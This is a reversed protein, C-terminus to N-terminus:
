RRYNDAPDERDEFSEYQPEVIVYWVTEKGNIVAITGNTLKVNAKSYTKPIENVQRVLEEVTM